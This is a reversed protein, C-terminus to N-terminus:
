QFPLNALATAVILAMSSLYTVTIAIVKLM